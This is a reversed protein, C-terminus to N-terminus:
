HPDAPAAPAALDALAGRHVLDAATALDPGPERDADLHRINTRVRALADAVGVGPAVGNTAAIRLDLAQAAVVLEIGLIQEVHELVRRAHLAAISGMSVHDEQNASTPITDVSAPHALVKNESALAAATYQYIMMGSELGSGTALFPPLGGNLRADVLLAIRRESISGLEAIALKAFDLALAIPEGHFNGGSIIRGGGTAATGADAVGGGPFVLPNDTASNLEIDLVRGLHDLADRVAGHVQPVCRLSYPDQVKHGSGHHHRQIGSDRLLHRLEAAVAVQGPHPRALQYEAAFAVDTGLLAEVSMAAAVSATRALRDADAVLLAGIATMMQTGNLLALGEKAELRLPELGVERLAVIAPVVQGNVEAHGRGILPLALHALPALDGSAGVSGQSPVIPHVGRELFALLRDVILPRCGSHGLALTNARLLLMARVVERPFAAGVGAAHSMLLNEQLREADSAPVFTSALDGFGTTVGYVVEGAAVLSEIVDRAEQMRERAHVDLGVRAAHRAVAEVDAVTLDAGTLVVREAGAASQGRVPEFHPEAARRRDHPDTM